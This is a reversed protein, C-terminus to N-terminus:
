EKQRKWMERKRKNEKNQNSCKGNFQIANKVNIQKRPKLALSADQRDSIERSISSRLSNKFWHLEEPTRVGVINITLSNCLECVAIYEWTLITHAKSRALPPMRMGRSYKPHAIVTARIFLWLINQLHHMSCLLYGSCIGNCDQCARYIISFSSATDACTNSVAPWMSEPSNKFCCVSVPESPINSM